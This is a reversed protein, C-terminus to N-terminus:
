VSEASLKSAPVFHFEREMEKGYLAVV